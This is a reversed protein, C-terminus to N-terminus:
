CADSPLNEGGVEKREVCQAEQIAINKRFRLDLLKKM